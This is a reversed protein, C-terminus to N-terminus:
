IEASPSLGFPASGGGMAILLGSKLMVLRHGVRAQLMPAITESKLVGGVVSVREVSALVRNRTSQGGTLLVSGDRLAAARHDMRPELLTGSLSPRGTKFFAMANGAREVVYAGSRFDDQSRGGALLVGDAVATGTHNAFAPTRYGLDLKLTSPDWTGSIAWGSVFYAGNELRTVIENRPWSVPSLELTYGAPTGSAGATLAFAAFLVGLAALRNALSPHSPM